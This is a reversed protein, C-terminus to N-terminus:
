PSDSAPSSRLIKAQEMVSNAFSSSVVLSTSSALSSSLTMVMSASSAFAFGPLAFCAAALVNVVMVSLKSSTKAKRWATATLDGRTM